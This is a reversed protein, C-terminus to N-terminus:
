RKERIPTNPYRGAVNAVADSANEAPDLNIQYTIVFRVRDGTVNLENEQPTVRGVGPIANIAELLDFVEADATTMGAISGSMVGSGSRPGSSTAGSGGGEVGDEIMWRTLRTMPSLSQTVLRFNQEADPAATQAALTSLQEREYERQLLDRHLESTETLQERMRVTGSALSGLRRKAGGRLTHTLLLLLSAALLPTLIRVTREVISKRVAAPIEALLDPVETADVNKWLPYMAAAVPVQDAEIVGEQSFIDAHNKISLVEANMGSLTSLSKAARRAKEDGGCVLIRKLLHSQKSDYNIGRHRFCFRQLRQRHSTLVAKLGEITETGTPRYDMWLCGDYAIGIDWRQGTGDAILAVGGGVRPDNRILRAIAVLSPEVWTVNLDTLEFVQRLHRGISENVVGTAAVRLPGDGRKNGTPRDKPEAEIDRDIWGTGIIKRGPGLGLYRQTRDALAALDFTMSDPSGALIRTVCFDGDLTVAVRHRGIGHRQQLRDIAIALATAGGPALFGTGGGITSRWAEGNIADPVPRDSAHDCDSRHVRDFEVALRGDTAPRGIALQIASDELRLGFIPKAATTTSM